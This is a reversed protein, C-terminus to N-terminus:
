AIASSATSPTVYSGDTALYVGNIDKAGILRQLTSKAGMWFDRLWIQDGTYDEAEATFKGSFLRRWTLEPVQQLYRNENESFARDPTLLSGVSLSLLILAVALIPPLYRKKM